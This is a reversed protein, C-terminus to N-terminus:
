QNHAEVFWLLKDVGRSVETFLDATDMDGAQDARDINARVHAGFTALASSFADVHDKGSQIETSYVPLNTTKAVTQVNGEVLGGLQVLREALDDSFNRVDGAAQDFLEHLAIFNPGKVNWHALKAQTQLDVAEATSQQLMEIMAERTSEALDNKTTTKIATTTMAKM